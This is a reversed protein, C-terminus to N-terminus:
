ECEPQYPGGCELPPMPTGGCNGDCLCNAMAITSLGCLIGCVTSGVTFYACAAACGLTGVLSWLGNCDVGTGSRSIVSPYNEVNDFIDKYQDTLDISFKQVGNNDALVSRYLKTRPNLMYYISILKKSEKIFVNYLVGTSEGNGFSLSVVDGVETKYVKLDQASFKMGNSELESTMSLFNEDRYMRNVAAEIKEDDTVLREDLDM